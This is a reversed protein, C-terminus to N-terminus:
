IYQHLDETVASSVTVDRNDEDLLAAAAKEPDYDNDHLAISIEDESRDSVVAAVQQIREEFDAPSSDSLMRAM